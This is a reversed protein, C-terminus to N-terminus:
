TPGSPVGIAPFYSSSEVGVRLPVNATVVRHWIAWALYAGILALLPETPNAPRGAAIMKFIEILGALSVAAIIGAAWRRRLDQGAALAAVTGALFAFAACSAVIDALALSLPQGYYASFPIWALPPRTVPHTPAHASVLIPLARLAVQTVLVPVLVLPSLVLALPHARDQREMRGTAVIALYAGVSAAAFNLIADLLEFSRSGIFIQLTEVVIALLAAQGLTAEFSSWRDRGTQRLALGRLFGMGAFLGALALTSAVAGANAGNVEPPTLTWRSRALSAHLADTQLVFDFPLLGALLTVFMALGALTALPNLALSQRLRGVAGRATWSLWSALVAGLLSGAGNVLVDIWSATRVPIATQLGEAMLSLAGGAATALLLGGILGTRRRWWAFCIAGVPLYIVLNTILDDIGSAPWGIGALGLSGAARAGAFDFSFPSLSGALVLLAVTLAAALALRGVTPLRDDATPVFDNRPEAHGAQINPSRVINAESELPM